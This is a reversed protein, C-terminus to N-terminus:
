TASWERIITGDLKTAVIHDFTDPSNHQVKIGNAICVAISRPEGIAIHIYGGRHRGQLLGPARLLRGLAEWKALWEAGFSECGLPWKSFLERLNM